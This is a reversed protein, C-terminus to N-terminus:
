ETVVHGSRRVIRDGLNDEQLVRFGSPDEISSLTDPAHMLYADSARAIVFDGTVKLLLLDIGFFFPRAGFSFPGYPTAEVDIPTGPTESDTYFPRTFAM